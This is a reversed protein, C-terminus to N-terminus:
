RPWLEEHEADPLLFAAEALVCAPDDPLEGRIVRLLRLAPPGAAAPAGSLLWARRTSDAPRDPVSVAGVRVSQVSKSPRLAASFFGVGAFSLRHLSAPGHAELAAYHTATPYGKHSALGYGPFERDLVIMLADRTVKALVSAAAIAVSKADGKVLPDFPLGSEPLKLYDSVIGLPPAPLRALEALARCAALRTAGLINRADIEANSALGVAAGAAGALIEDFLRRRTPADLQKSDNLGDPAPRAPDWLVAAAVVPGALPGRGAEDVGAIRAADCGLRAALSLEPEHTPPM